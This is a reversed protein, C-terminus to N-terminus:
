IEEKFKTIEQYLHPWSYVRKVKNNKDNLNIITDMIYTKIEAKAMNECNRISDDVFLDIHKDKATKVKDEVNVILEDYNINNEKLWRLTLEKIDFKDSPFRATILFIKHGEEKLKNITEVAFLKPQVKTIITEYYKDLFSKEEDKTWNHFDSFYMHTTFNRDVDEINKGLEETTFKQAYPFICGYTDTITDDIDIGINM